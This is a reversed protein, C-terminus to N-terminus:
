IRSRPHGRASRGPGAGPLRRCPRFRLRHAGGHLDGRDHRHGRWPEARGRAREGGHLQELEFYRDDLANCLHGTTRASQGGRLGREDIVLVDKGSAALRYATTLGAIGAGVVCVQTRQSGPLPPLEPVSATDMWLSLSGGDSSGDPARDMACEKAATSVTRTSGARASTFEADM